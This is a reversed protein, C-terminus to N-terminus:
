PSTTTIKNCTTVATNQLTPSPLKAAAGLCTARAKVLAATVNPLNELRACGQEAAAHAKADSIAQTADLCKQKLSASLGSGPATTTTTTSDSGSSGGCAGLGLLAVLVPLVLLARLTMAPIM